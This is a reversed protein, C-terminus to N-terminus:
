YTPGSSPRVGGHLRIQYCNSFVKKKRQTEYHIPKLDGCTKGTEAVEVVVMAAAAVAAVM